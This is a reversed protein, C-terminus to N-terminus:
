LGPVMLHQKLLARAQVADRRRVAELIARHEAAVRAADERQLGAKFAGALSNQQYAWVRMVEEVMPSWQLLFENRAARLLTLHFQMDERLFMEGSEAKKELQVVSQELQELDADSIRSAILGIAGVEVVARAERVAEYRAREQDLIGEGEQLLAPESVERLFIGKGPKKTIVGEAVLISLGERVVNRSVALSESLRRESPLKSGPPLHENVIYAKIADSVRRALTDRSMPVLISVSSQSDETVVTVGLQYESLVLIGSILAFTLVWNKGIIPYEATVVTLHRGLCEELFDGQTPLTKLYLAYEIFGLVLQTFAQTNHLVIKDLQWSEKAVAHGDDWTGYVAQDDVTM